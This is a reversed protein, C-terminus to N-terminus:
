LIRIIILCISIILALVAFILTKTRLTRKEDSNDKKPMNSLMIIAIISPIIGMGFFSFILSFVSVIYCLMDSNIRVHTTHRSYTNHPSGFKNTRNQPNDTRNGSGVYNKVKPLTTYKNENSINNYQYADETFNLGSSGDYGSNSNETFVKRENVQSECDPDYNQHANNDDTLQNSGYVTDNGKEPFQVDPFIEDFSMDTFNKNDM